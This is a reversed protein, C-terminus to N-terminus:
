CAHDSHAKGGTAPLDNEERLRSQDALTTWHNPPERAFLAAPGLEAMARVASSTLCRSTLWDPMRRTHGRSRQVSVLAAPYIGRLALCRQAQMMQFSSRTHPEPSGRWALHAAPTSLAASPRSCTAQRRVAVQFRAIALRVESIASGDDLGILRNSCNTWTRIRQPRALRRTPGLRCGSSGRRNSRKCISRRLPHPRARQPLRSTREHRRRLARALPAHTRSFCRRAARAALNESKQRDGAHFAM